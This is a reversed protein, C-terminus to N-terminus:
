HLRITLLLLCCQGLPRPYSLILKCWALLLLRIGKQQTCAKTPTAAVRSTGQWFSQELLPWHLLPVQRQKGPKPSLTLAVFRIGDSTSHVRGVQNRRANTPHGAGQCTRAKRTQEAQSYLVARCLEIAQLRLLSCRKLRQQHVYALAFAETVDKKDKWTQNCRSGTRSPKLVEVQTSGIKSVIGRHQTSITILYHDVGPLGRVTSYLM